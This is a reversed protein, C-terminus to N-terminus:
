NTQMQMQVWVGAAPRGRWMAGSWKARRRASDASVPLGGAWGPLAGAWWDCQESGLEDGLGEERSPLSTPVGWM